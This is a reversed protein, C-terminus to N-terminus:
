AAKKRRKKEEARTKYSLYAELKKSVVAPLDGNQISLVGRAILEKILLESESYYNLKGAVPLFIFNAMFIGYFTTTVAIAMSKGMSQPDSLNRLVQVVGILTGLLGFIPSYAGATRFTNTIQFHRQRTLIIEREMRDRVLEVDLSDVLMQVGDVMFPHKLHPIETQLSEIGDRRAKDALQILYYIINQPHIKRPPFFIMLTAKPMQRLLEWPFTILISGLTGGVVLLAANPDTLLHLIGGEAMIYYISGGGVAFGILTMFDM